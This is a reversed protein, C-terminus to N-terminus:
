TTFDHLGKEIDIKSNRKITEGNISDHTLRILNPVTCSTKNPCKYILQM